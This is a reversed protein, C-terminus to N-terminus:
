ATESAGRLDPSAQRARRRRRLHRSVNAQIMLLSPTLLMTLLTAFALGGAVASAMQTWWQAGPGGFEIKRNILDINAGLVMPMLGLITTITTLLVPRLRQACTRLIAERADGSTRRVFNYTDILVINNNVVIGALAITGIGSMVIGYPTGTAIHGLLVGGTSFVVATLILLAQFISNFQTVLILAMLALAILMARTLFERAEDQDVNGGRFEIAVGPDLNLEPLKATIVAVMDDVFQPKGSSDTPALDAVIKLTRRMDTRDIAGVKQAPLRTIFNSIPINGERTAVRLSDLRDLNRDGRPFRVRIDIEEDADDPRYEGVKIGNTILQIASGVTTVDAGFQAAKTRDVAIRWEIGPLSRSDDINRLGETEMLLARVQDVAHELKILSKSAFEIEIAQGRPPGAQPVKFDIVIGALDDTRDRIENLIAEAPRRDQWDILTLRMSGIQDKPADGGGPTGTRTYVHEIEPMGLIRREVQGVIADKEFASLDGRARVNVSASTPEVEPFFVQGLETLYFAFYITLLLGTAIGLNEWPRDLRKDLFRLYTGTFGGISHLDGREAAELDKHMAASAAGPRGFMAGLTPLFLLAMFLSASLVLFLTKPLFSMFEGLMGPWGILPLFAALTTATSSIIPWTMRKAAEAYALQRPMGEAMRRDALETVVIAGDVLLGVAMLLGFMTVMNISMGLLGMVMLAGLFSGPVAVGVLAANRFGLIGIIVIFVLLVASIVNNTLENIQNRVDKSKDSSFAIQIGPPWSEREEAILVKIADITNIVNSGARQVVELAVAPRGNLRAFSQPDKFARRVTAIDSFRVVTSGDVKIPLSLMDSASEIVGPVKIAFRGTDTQLAGAAVLRNNRAVFNLIDDQKLGYSEMASPDLIVEMLEERNGAISAELVGPLSEIKEQLDSTLRNLARETVAGGINLVLIPMMQAIRVESVIPEDADDPLKSKALDVKERVEVIALQPDTGADFELTIHASGEQATTSMEKVGELARLEQEIPRALLRESDEPSVGELRVQVRVMPIVVEPEAEKPLNIYAVTGAVFIVLMIMVVTRSRTVAADVINM